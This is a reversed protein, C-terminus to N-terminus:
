PTNTNLLVIDVLLPQWLPDVIHDKIMGLGVQGFTLSTDIGSWVLTNNIYFKLDSNKAVVKLVNWGNINIAPSAEWSHLLISNGENMLGVGFDGSNSYMFFYGSNWMNSSDLPDPTGRVVLANDSDGIRMMRVTYTFDKYLGDHVISNFNGKWGSTRYFNNNFLEWPGFVTQWGKADSTFTSTFSTSVDFWMFSSWNQWVGGIKPRVRWTYGHDPLSRLPTYVCYDAGCISTGQMSSFMKYAGAYVEFEYATAGPATTWIYQPTHTNTIFSPKFPAALPTSNEVNVVSASLLSINAFPSGWPLAYHHDPNNDFTTRVYIIDDSGYGYGAVTLGMMNLLVPHGADIQAKYDALTFGGSYGHSTMFNDTTQTYCDTVKYGRAEYFLKRGYTGDNTHIGYAAMDACTLKGNNKITFHFNTAGDDNNYASQSTKMYDGIANGWTHEPWDYIIYPDIPSGYLGVWYDDITGKITRGDVGQHSAVLPNNAFGEYGDSWRDWGTDTIPMVGHDTPGTYMNPFGHNDYYGAIMGAAVASTGLVFKYAPFNGLIGEAPLPQISASIEATVDAPPSSPGNIISKEIVAGDSFNLTEVSFYSSFEEVESSIVVPGDDQSKPAAQVSLTTVGIMTLLILTSIIKVSLKNAM